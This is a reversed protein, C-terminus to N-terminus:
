LVFQRLAHKSSIGELACPAIVWRVALLPNFDRLASINDQM